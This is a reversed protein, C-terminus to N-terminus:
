IECVKTVSILVTQYIGVCIYVFIFIFDPSSLSLHLWYLVLISNLTGNGNKSCKHPQMVEKTFKKIITTGEMANDAICIPRARAFVNAVLRFMQRRLHHSVIQERPGREKGKYQQELCYVENLLLYELVNVVAIPKLKLVLVFLNENNFQVLLSYTDVQPPLPLAGLGPKLWLWTWGSKPIVKMRKEEFFACPDALFPRLEIPLRKPRLFHGPSCTLFPSNLSSLTQIHM